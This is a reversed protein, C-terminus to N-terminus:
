VASLAEMGRPKSNIAHTAESFGLRPVQVEIVRM